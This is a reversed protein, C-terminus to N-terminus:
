TINVSIKGNLSIEQSKYGVFSVVLIANADKVNLTFAGSENTTTGNSTGKEIVSVGAHASTNGTNDRLQVVGTITIATIPQQSSIVILNNELFKYTLLTSQFAFDLVDTLNANKFNATIKKDKPLIDDNYIFRYNSSHQISNIVNKIPADSFNINLKEQSFGTAFAHVCGITLILATLKMICLFKLFVKRQIFLRLVQLKKM